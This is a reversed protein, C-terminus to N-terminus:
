LLDPRLILLLLLLLILGDFLQRDRFVLCRLPWLTRSGLPLPLQHLLFRLISEL